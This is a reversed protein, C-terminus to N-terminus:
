CILMADGYSFFRYKKRVAENYAERILEDGGFTRVLILLTSKPLHFNTLLVDVNRFQYPPHIFLSTEGEFPKLDPASELVRVSTTGVAIIRGGTVKCHQLAAGTSEPLLCWEAHMPHEHINEVTIPKFTGMGVHLTVPVITIGQQKVANFLQPTFHLGATPAAVAGPKSAYVTQYSEKDEPLMRGNRIYPPIPVWGVQELAALSTKETQPKVIWSGDNLKTGFELSFGVHGEPTQLQVFEGTQIKGRTKGIIKWLRNSDFGLFLGEWCGGTKTRTGVLRAPLVKTDNVVVCDNPELLSPLDYVHLHQFKGTKRDVVLLRADSRNRLPTQAILDSPLEYDYHSLM